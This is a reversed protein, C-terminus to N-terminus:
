KDGEENKTILSPFGEQDWNRNCLAFQLLAGTVQSISLDFDAALRKITTKVKDSADAQLCKVRFRAQRQAGTLAKGTARRGRPAPIGPLPLSQVSAPSKKAM